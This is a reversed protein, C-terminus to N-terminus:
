YTYKVIYSANSGGVNSKSIRSTVDYENTYNVTSTNMVNGNYMSVTNSVVRNNKGVKDNSYYLVIENLYQLSSFVNQKTDYSYTDLQSDGFNYQVLNGDVIKKYTTYTGTIVGSSNYVDVVEEILAPNSYNYTKSTSIVGSANEEVISQVTGDSNYSFEAVGVSTGNKFHNIGVLYGGSYSFSDEDSGNIKVKSLTNGSIELEWADPLASNVGPIREAVIKPNVVEKEIPDNTSCGVLSLVSVLLVLKKM